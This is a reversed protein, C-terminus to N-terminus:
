QHAARLCLPYVSIKALWGGFAENVVRYVGGRVFLGCSEIYVMCMPAAFLLVVLVYWPAAKGVSHEAIGAVYYVTSAMDCLVIAAARWFSIFTLMATTLVVVERVRVGSSSSPTTSGEAV